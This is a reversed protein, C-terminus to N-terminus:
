QMKLKIFYFNRVKFFKSSALVKGDKDIIAAHKCINYYQFGSFEDTLNILFKDLIYEYNM